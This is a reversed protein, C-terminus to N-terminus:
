LYLQQLDCYLNTTLELPAGLMMGDEGCILKDSDSWEFVNGVLLKTIQGFQPRSEPDPHRFFIIM